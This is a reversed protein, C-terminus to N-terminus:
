CAETNLHRAAHRLIIHDAQTKALGTFTCKCIAVVDPRDLVLISVTVAPFSEKQVVREAKRQDYKIQRVGLAVAWGGM